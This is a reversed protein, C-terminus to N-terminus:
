EIFLISILGLILMFFGLYAWRMNAKVESESMGKKRFGEKMNEIIGRRYKDPDQEKSRKILNYMGWIFVVVSTLAGIKTDLAFLPVPIFVYVIWWIIIRRKQTKSSNGWYTKIWQIIMRLTILAVIGQGLNTLPKKKEEKEEM